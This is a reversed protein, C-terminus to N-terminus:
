KFSLRRDREKSQRDDRPIFLFSVQRISNGTFISRAEALHIRSGHMLYFFDPFQEMSLGKRNGPCDGPSNQSDGCMLEECFFVSLPYQMYKLFGSSAGGAAQGTRLGT